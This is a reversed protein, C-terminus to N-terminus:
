LAQPTRNVALVNRYARLGFGLAWLRCPDCHCDTSCVFFGLEPLKLGREAFGISGHEEVVATNGHRLYRFKAPLNTGGAAVVADDLVREGLPRRGTRRVFHEAGLE